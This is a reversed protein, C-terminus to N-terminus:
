STVMNVISNGTMKGRKPRFLAHDDQLVVEPVRAWSVERQLIGVLNKTWVAWGHWGHTSDYFHYHTKKRFPSSTAISRWRLRTETSLSLCVLTNSNLSCRVSNKPNFSCARWNLIPPKESFSKRTAFDDVPLHSFKAIIVSPCPLQSSGFKIDSFAATLM